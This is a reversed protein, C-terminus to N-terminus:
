KKHELWHPMIQLIVIINSFENTTILPLFLEPLKPHLEKWKKCVEKKEECPSDSGFAWKLMKKYEEIYKKATEYEEKHEPNLEDQDDEDKEVDSKIEDRLEILRGVIKIAEEFKGMGKKDM